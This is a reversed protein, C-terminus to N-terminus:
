EIGLYTNKLTRLPLGNLGNMVTYGEGAGYVTREMLPIDLATYVMTIIDERTCFDDGSYKGINETLGIQDATSRFGLPYGGNESGMPGYGLVCVVMKVAEDYTINKDPLFTGDGNGNIIDMQSSEYIYGAAWHNTPVDSFVTNYPAPVNRRGCMKCVISAMEARTIKEDLWLNGESDGDIIGASVVGDIQKFHVNDVVKGQQSTGDYVVSTAVAGDFAEVHIMKNNIGDKYFSNGKSVFFTIYSNEGGVFGELEKESVEPIVTKSDIFYTNKDKLSIVPSTDEGYSRFTIVGNEDQKIGGARLCLMEYDTSERFEKIGMDNKAFALTVSSLMLALILVMYSVKNMKM